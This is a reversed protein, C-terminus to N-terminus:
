WQFLCNVVQFNLHYHQKWKQLFVFWFFRIWEVNRVIFMVHFTPLLRPWGLATFEILWAVGAPAEATTVATKEAEPVMTNALMRNALWRTLQPNNLIDWGNTTISLCLTISVLFAHMIFIYIYIYWLQWISMLDSAHNFEYRSKGNGGACQELLIAKIYATLLFMDARTRFRDDELCM